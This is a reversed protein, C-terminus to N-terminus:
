IAAAADFSGAYAAAACIGMACGAAETAKAASTKEALSRWETIKEAPGLENSARSLHFLKSLPRDCGRDRAGHGWREV